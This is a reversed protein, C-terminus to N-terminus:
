INTDMNCSNPVKPNVDASLACSHGEDQLKKAVHLLLRRQCKPIKPSQLDAIDILALAELSTYGRILVEDIDARDIKQKLCFIIVKDAEGMNSLSGSAIDEPSIVNLEETDSM